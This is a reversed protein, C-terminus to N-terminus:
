DKNLLASGPPPVASSDIVHPHHESEHAAIYGNATLTLDRNAKHQHHENHVLTKLAEEREETTREAQDKFDLYNEAEVGERSLWDAFEDLLKTCREDKASATPLDHKETALFFQKNTEIYEKMLAEGDCDRELVASWIVTM